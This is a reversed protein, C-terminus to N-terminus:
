IRSAPAPIAAKFRDTQTILWNTLQGGYSVGEVGLKQPDIWSNRRIAADVATLVDKAEGGDQDRFIADAFKQGYGTSGRYNVMLTAWGHEAYVQAQRNLAPGQQGHPGGHILVIMGHTSTPSMRIPKTLFAEVEKGDFSLFSMREVDAVKRAQLLVGNLDTLRRPAGGARVYLQALDRATALTFAFAGTRALSWSGVSSTDDGLVMEAKGGAAPLRYLRTVGREQVTFYVTASDASWVPAGQRNDVVLGVERRNSGDANMVWVHTDEMTTESSTLGRKTGQYAVSKGDPSWVPRYEVSETNTLRRISQDAVRVSFIDYNFFRDPDNERNSVFLIEDGKPSWDISHEHFTGQTLQQVQRNEVDVIFVHSRRNDNFRSDGNSATPKYLYRSVVIPDGAPDDTEPGPTASVFALKKGDPSWSIREGTSPMPHNTSQVATLFVPERGTATAVFLGSKGGASGVYAIAKGDPSWRAGGATGAEDGLRSSKGTAVEMLWAVSYPAGPRDNHTISYIVHTGDPSIQAEGASKLQYLDQAVLGSQGSAAGCFMLVSLLVRATRMM